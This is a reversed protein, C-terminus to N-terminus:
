PSTNPSTVGYNCTVSAGCATTPISNASISLCIGAGGSACVQPDKNGRELSAYLWYSQGTSFYVYNRSSSPDAPIATKYATWTTGWDYMVSGPYLRHLPATTTHAPYSGNDNIYAELTKQIQALDSKRRADNAKRMQEAPNILSILLAAMISLVAIVLILEVLTFGSNAYLSYHKAFLGKKFKM